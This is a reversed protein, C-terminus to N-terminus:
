RWGTSNLFNLHLSQVTWLTVTRTLGLLLRSSFTPWPVRLRNATLLNCSSRSSTLAQAQVTAVKKLLFCCRMMQKSKRKKKIEEEFCHAPGTRHANEHVLGSKSQRESWLPLFALGGHGRSNSSRMLKNGLWIICKIFSTLRENKRLYLTKFCLFLFGFCFLVGWM